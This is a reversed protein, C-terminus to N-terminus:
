FDFISSASFKERFLPKLFASIEECNIDESDSLGNVAWKYKKDNTELKIFAGKGFKKLEIKEVQDYTIVFNDKDRALLEEISYKGIIDKQKRAENWAKVSDIVGYGMQAGTAVRVVVIKDSAFYLAEFIQTMLWGVNRFGTIVGLAERM